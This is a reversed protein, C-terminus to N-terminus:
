SRFSLTVPLSLVMRSAYRLLSASLSLVAALTAFAFLRIVALKAATPLAALANPAAIMAVAAATPSPLSASPM